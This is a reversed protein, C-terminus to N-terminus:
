KVFEVREVLDDRFSYISIVEFPAVDGGRFVDEHLVVFEGMAYRAKIEARNEPFDAFTKANGARVGNRGERLVAGRYAAEFGDETFFAAYGDADQANYRDIMRDVIALRDTGDSV